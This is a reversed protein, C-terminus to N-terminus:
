KVERSMFNSNIVRIVIKENYNIKEILNDYEMVDIITSFDEESINVSLINSNKLKTLIESVTFLESFNPLYHSDNEKSIIKLIVVMLKEVLDIDVENNEFFIGGTMKEDPMLDYLVYMKRNNKISKLGKIKNSVELGKLIKLLLAHPINSKNKIDKIWVGESGGEKLINLIMAEYDNKMDRKAKYFVGGLTVSVEIKNASLLENLTSAIDIKKIEPFNKTIMDENAGDSVEELYKFLEEQNKM